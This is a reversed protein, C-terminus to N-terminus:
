FYVNKQIILQLQFFYDLGQQSRAVRTQSWTHRTYVGTRSQSYRNFRIMSSNMYLPSYYMTHDPNRNVSACHVACLLNLVYAFLFKYSHFLISKINELEYLCILHVVILVDYNM